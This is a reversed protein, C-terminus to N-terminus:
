VVSGAINEQMGNSTMQGQSLAEWGGKPPPQQRKFFGVKYLIASLIIILMVAGIVALFLRWFGLAKLSELGTQGENREIITIETLARFIFDNLSIGSNRGDKPINNDDQFDRQYSQTTNQVRTDHGTANKGNNSAMES